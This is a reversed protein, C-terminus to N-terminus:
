EAWHASPIEREAAVGVGTAEVLRLFGVLFAQRAEPDAALEDLVTFAMFGIADALLEDATFDDV